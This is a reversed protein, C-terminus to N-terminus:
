SMDFSSITMNCTLLFVRTNFSAVIVCRPKSIHHVSKSKRTSFDLPIFYPPIIILILLAIKMIGTADFANDVLEALAYSTNKFGSKRQSSFARASVYTKM